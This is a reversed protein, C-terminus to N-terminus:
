LRRLSRGRLGEAQRNARGDLHPSRARDGGSPRHRQERQRERARKGEHRIWQGAQRSVAGTQGRELLYRVRAVKLEDSLMGEVEDLIEHAEDFKRQLSQTRALQTLLQALYDADGSARAAPLMSRFEAETSDPNSYDWRKDFDLIESAQANASDSM